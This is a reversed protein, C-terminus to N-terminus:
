KSVPDENKALFLPLSASESTKLFVSEIANKKLHFNTVPKNSATLFFKLVALINTHIQKVEHGNNLDDVRISINKDKTVMFSTNYLISKIQKRVYKLDVNDKKNSTRDNNEEMALKIIYPVKKNKAYFTEGLVDPLLHQIRYDCLLYGFEKSIRKKSKDNVKKLKKISMVEINDFKEALPKFIEAYNNIVTNSKTIILIRETAIDDIIPTPIPIIRQLYDKKTTLPTKFNIVLYLNGDRTSKQLAKISKHSVKEFDKNDFTSSM